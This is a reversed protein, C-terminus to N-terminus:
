PICRKYIVILSSKRIEAKLRDYQRIVLDSSYCASRQGPFFYGIKQIEVNALAESELEVIIDMIILSSEASLRKSQSPLVHKVKVKQGIICTLLTSLRGGHTVPDFIHKFFPDYTIKLGRKGRIFDQVEQQLEETLNLYQEYAKSARLIEMTEKQSLLIGEMGNSPHNTQVVM